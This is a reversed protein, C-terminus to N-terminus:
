SKKIKLGVVPFHLFVVRYLIPTEQLLKINLTNYANKPLDSFRLFVVVM